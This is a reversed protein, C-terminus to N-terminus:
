PDRVAAALRHVSSIQPGRDSIITPRRLSQDKVSESESSKPRPPIVKSPFDSSSNLRRSLWRQRIMQYILNFQVDSQVMTMRQERLANVTDFIVDTESAEPFDDLSGEDTEALLHDLAIFTGSRGVGASCHIIRPSEPTGSLRSSLRSLAPIANRDNAEPTSFDPWLGFLIHRVIKQQDHVTLRLNRITARAEAHEEVSLLKVTAQFNGKAGTEGEITITDEELSRPFYQFCKERGAEWIQTLMVIVAPDATEHWVM